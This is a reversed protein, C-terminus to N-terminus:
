LNLSIKPATRLKYPHVRVEVVEMQELAYYM